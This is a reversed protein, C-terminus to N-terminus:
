AQSSSEVQDGEGGRARLIGVGSAEEGGSLQLETDAAAMVISFPTTLGGAGACEPRLDSSFSVVFFFFFVVGGAAASIEFFFSLPFCARM